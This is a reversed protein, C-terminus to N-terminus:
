SAPYDTRLDVHGAMHRTMLAVIRFKDSFMSIATMNSLIKMIEDLLDRSANCQRIFERQQAKAMSIYSITDGTEEALNDLPDGVLDHGYRIRGPKYQDQFVKESFERIYNVIEDADGLQRWQEKSTFQDAM